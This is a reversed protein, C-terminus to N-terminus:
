GGKKKLANLLQKFRRGRRGTVEKRGEIKEETVHKIHCNKSL